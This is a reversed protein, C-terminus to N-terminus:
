LQTKTALPSTLPCARSGKTLKAMASLHGSVKPQFKAPFSTRALRNRPLLSRALFYNCLHQARPENTPANSARPSVFTMRSIQHANLRPSMKRAQVCEARMDCTRLWIRTNRFVRCSRVTLNAAAASASLPSSTGGLSAM